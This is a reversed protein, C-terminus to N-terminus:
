GAALTALGVRATPAAAIREELLRCIRKHCANCGDGAGTHHRIDALSCLGLQEVAGLITEEAIGLCRCIIRGSCQEPHGNCGNSSCCSM